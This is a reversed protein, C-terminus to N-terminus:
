DNLPYDITEKKSMVSAGNNDNSWFLRIVYIEQSEKLWLKRRGSHKVQRRLRNEKATIPQKKM